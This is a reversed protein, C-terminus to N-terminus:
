LTLSRARFDLKSNTKGKTSFFLPLTVHRKAISCDYTQSVELEAEKSGSLSSSKPLGPGVIILSFHLSKKQFIIRSRYRFRNYRGRPLGSQFFKCDHTSFSPIGSRFSLFHILNLVQICKRFLLLDGLEIKPSDEM